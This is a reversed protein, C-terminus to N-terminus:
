VVALLEDPEVPKALHTHFGSLLARRRDKTGAYATLAVAPVRGGREAPLTRIKKILEYGNEGPMGIDSVIVDPTMGELATLAEVASAAETVEAGCRELITKLLERTDREDEVLLVRVGELACPDGFLEGDGVGTRAKESFMEPRGRAPTTAAAATLPVEVTFVSGHGEGESEASASGGQSEVLHRVIALGLGLGGHARTNSSDAQHFREFIHPLADPSIGVGTDSVVIRARAGSQAESRELRVEVRGGEPTFKIANSLLNTVVQQLRAPDGTVPGASPDIFSDLRLRKAEAAPRLGGVATEVVPALMVPQVEMRLKGTIIRSVDLLDEILKSQAEANREIIQIARAQAPGDLQGSRLMRSWGLMATLPTRLEHSLTALFEDKIRNAQELEEARLLLVEHIRKRDTTDRGVGYALGEEPVPFYSWGVWRYSGDKCRFRNELNTTPEGLALREYNAITAERDEPHVFDFVPAALLEEETYGLAQGFAPNVRRFYGDLGAICLMDVSLRFFRDREEEIKRRETMDRMVKTFGLLGGDDGRVPTVVGSAWFRTGDRRMHWREDEARGEAAATALEREHEGRARDEPTFFLSASQGTIEDETYGLIREAGLNWSVVLNGPDTMFIAYDKVEEISKRYLDEVRRYSKRRNQVDQMHTGRRIHFFIPPCRAGGPTSSSSNLGYLHPPPGDTGDRVRPAGPVASRERTYLRPGVTRV